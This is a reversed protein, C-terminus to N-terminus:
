NSYDKARAKKEKKEQKQLFPEVMREFERIRTEWTNTAAKKTRATIKDESNDNIAWDIINVFESSSNALHIFDKFSAIDPSFNTSVM